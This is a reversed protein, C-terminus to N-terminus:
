ESGRSKQAPPQNARAPAPARTAVRDFSTVTIRYEVAGSIPDVVYTTDSGAEIDGFAWVAREGIRRHDADLGVRLRVDTVRFPSDNYVQGEITATLADTRQRWSVRFAAAGSRREDEGRAPTTTFTLGFLVPVLAVVLANFGARARRRAAPMKM